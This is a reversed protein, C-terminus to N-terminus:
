PLIRCRLYAPHLGGRHVVLRNALKHFYSQGSQPDIVSGSLYELCHLKQMVETYEGNALLYALYNDWKPASFQAEWV